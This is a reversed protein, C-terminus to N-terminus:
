LKDALWHSSIGIIGAIFYVPNVLLLPCALLIGFIISHFIGRHKVLLLVVEAGILIMIPYIVDRNVFYFLGLILILYFCILNLKNKIWSNNKDLDPLLSYLLCIILAILFKSYDLSYFYSLGICIIIFLSGGVLLHGVKNM